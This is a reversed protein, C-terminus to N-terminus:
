TLLSVVMFYQVPRLKQCAAIEVIKLSPFKGLYACEKDNGLLRLSALEHLVGGLFPRFEMVLDGLHGVYKGILVYAM